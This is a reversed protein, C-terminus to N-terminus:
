FQLAAGSKRWVLTAGSSTDFLTTNTVGQSCPSHKSLVLNCWATNKLHSSVSKVLKSSLRPELNCPPLRRKRRVQGPAFCLSHSNYLRTYECCPCVLVAGPVPIDCVCLLNMRELSYDGDSELPLGRCVPTKEPYSKKWLSLPLVHM